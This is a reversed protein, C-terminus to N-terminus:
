KAGERGGRCRSTIDRFVGDRFQNLMRHAAKRSESADFGYVILDHFEDQLEALQTHLHAMAAVSPAKGRAKRSRAYSPSKGMLGSMQEQTEAVKTARCARMLDDWSLM